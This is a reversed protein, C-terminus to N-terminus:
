LTKIIVFFNMNGRFFINLYSMQLIEDLVIKGPIPSSLVISTCIHSVHGSKINLCCNKEHECVKQLVFLIFTKIKQIVNNTLKKRISFHQKNEKVKLNGIHISVSFREYFSDGLTAHRLPFAISVNECIYSFPINSYLFLSSPCFILPKSIEPRVKNSVFDETNPGEEVQDGSTSISTELIRLFFVKSESFNLM